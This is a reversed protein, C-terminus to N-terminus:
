CAFPGLKTRKEATTNETSLNEREHEREFSLDISSDITHTEHSPLDGRQAEEALLSFFSSRVSVM